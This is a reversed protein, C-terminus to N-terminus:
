EDRSGHFYNNAARNVLTSLSRTVLIRLVVSVFISFPCLCGCLVAQCQLKLMEKNM